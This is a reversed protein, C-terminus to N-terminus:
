RQQLWDGSEIRVLGDVSGTFVYAFAAVREGSHRTTAVAERVYEDGEYDDLTHLVPRDRLRWLDGQVREDGGAVFGPYWDVRYLRGGVTAPGVKDAAGALVEHMPHGSGARLTGYVFLHEVTEEGM